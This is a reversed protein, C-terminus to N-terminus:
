GVDDLIVALLARSFEEIGRGDHVVATINEVIPMPVGHARAMELVPGCSTVGEATQKTDAVVEPVTMGRGLKRGFTSNRSHPSLCTVVLDGIGALGAFTAPHAGMAVGLARIEALGHTIVAARAADGLELGEAMGVALAIVNKVCGGLEAGIVDDHVYPRFYQTACADAVRQATPLHASAVTTAAPEKAAIERAINPGSVVAVQSMPKGSAEVVVESMRKMTGRELGKMLSVVVADPPILGGWEGLNVRLTQAPVALVVIGAGELAEAPDTTATVTDPLELDPLYRVSRRHTRIDDVEDPFKGWMRIRNGADAVVGSFATGWSGTGFVAVQEGTGSHQGSGSQTV